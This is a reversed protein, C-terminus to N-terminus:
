IKVEERVVAIVHSGEVGGPGICSLCSHYSCGRQLPSAISLVLADRLSCRAAATVTDVYGRHLVVRYLLRDLRLMRGTRSGAVVEILVLSEEAVRYYSGPMPRGLM